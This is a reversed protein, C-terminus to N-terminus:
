RLGLKKAARRFLQRGEETMTGTYNARNDRRIRKLIKYAGPNADKIKRLTSPTVRM